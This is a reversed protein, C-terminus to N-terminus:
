GGALSRVYLTRADFSSLRTLLTELPRPLPADQPLGARTLLITRISDSPTTLPIKLRQFINPPYRLILAYLILLSHLVLGLSLANRLTFPEPQRRFFLVAPVLIATALVFFADVSASVLPMAPPRVRGLPQPSDLHGREVADVDHQIGDM